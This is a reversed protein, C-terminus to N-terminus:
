FELWFGTDSFEQFTWCLSSCICLSYYYMVWKFFMLVFAKKMSSYLSIKITPVYLTPNLNTGDFSKISIDAKGVASRLNGNGVQIMIPDNFEEYPSDWERWFWIHDTSESDLLRSTGAGYYCRTGSKQSKKCNNKIIHKESSKVTLAGLMEESKFAIRVEKKTHFDQIFRPTLNTLTRETRSTSSFALKQPNRLSLKILSHLKYHCLILKFFTFSIFHQNVFQNVICTPWSLNTPYTVSTIFM